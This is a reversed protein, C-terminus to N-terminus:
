PKLFNPVNTICWEALAHEVLRERDISTLPANNTSVLGQRVAEKWNQEQIDGLTVNTHQVGSTDVVLVDRGCGCLGLILLCTWKM